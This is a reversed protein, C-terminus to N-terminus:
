ETITIPNGLLANNTEDEEKVVDDYDAIAGLYYLGATVTYRPIPVETNQPSSGNSLLGYVMRKGLERDDADGLTTNTSLYIHVNFRDATGLGINKVTNSVTISGGVQGTLPGSVATMTLDPGDVDIQNGALSNNYEDSEIQEELYDAIAGIYYIGPTLDAPIRVEREDESSTEALLENKYRGGLFRDETTITTNKSLYLGISFGKSDGPGANRVTNKIAISGGTIGTLPGSVGTVFLDPQAWRTVEITVQKENGLTDAATVPIVNVGINELWVKRWYLGETANYRATFGGIRVSAIGSPDTVMCSIVASTAYTENRLWNSFCVISPPRNITEFGHGAGGKNDTTLNGAEDTSHVEYTYSTAERLGALEVTHATTLQQIHKEGTVTSGGDDYSYIVKSDALEDTTWTIIATTD